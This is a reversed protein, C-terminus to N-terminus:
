KRTAENHLDITDNTIKCDRNIYEKVRVIKEKIVVQQEQIEQEKKTQEIVLRKNLELSQEELQKIQKKSEAIAKNFDDSATSYGIFFSIIIAIVSIMSSAIIQKLGSFFVISAILTIISIILIIYLMWTTTFTLILSAIM